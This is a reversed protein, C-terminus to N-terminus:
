KAEEKERLLENRMMKVVLFCLDENIQNELVTNTASSLKARIKFYPFTYFPGDIYPVLMSSLKGWRM